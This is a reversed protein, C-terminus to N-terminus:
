RPVPETKLGHAVPPEIASLDKLLMKADLKKNTNGAKPAVFTTAMPSAAGVPPVNAETPPVEGISSPVLSRPSTSKQDPKASPRAPKNRKVLPWNVLIAASPSAVGM